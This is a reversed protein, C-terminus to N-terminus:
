HSTTALLNREWIALPRFNLSLSRAPFCRVFSQCHLTSRPMALACKHRMRVLLVSYSLRKYACHLVRMPCHLGTLPKLAMRLLVTAVAPRPHPPSCFLLTRSQLDPNGRYTRDTDYRIDQISAIGRVEIRMLVTDFELVLGIRDVYM